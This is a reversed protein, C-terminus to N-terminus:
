SSLAKSIKKRRKAAKQDLKKSQDKIASVAGDKKPPGLLKKVTKELPKFTAKKVKPPKAKKRM